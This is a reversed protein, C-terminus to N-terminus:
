EENDEGIADLNQLLDLDEELLEIYEVMELDVDSFEALRGITEPPQYYRYTAVLAVCLILGAAALAPVFRRNVFLASIDNLVKAHWPIQESVRNWFHASYNPDPQIDDVEGLMEWAKQIAQAEQSCKACTRLHAKVRQHEPPELEGDLFIPIRNKIETCDM